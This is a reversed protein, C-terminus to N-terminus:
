FLPHSWLWHLASIAAWLIGILIAILIPIGITGAILNFRHENESAQRIEAERALIESQRSDDPMHLEFARAKRYWDEWPPEDAVFYAGVRREKRPHYLRPWWREHHKTPM